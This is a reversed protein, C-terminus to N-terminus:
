VNEAVIRKSELLIRDGAESRGAGTVGGRPVVDVSVDLAAEIAEKMRVLDFYGAGEEMTVLLDLDSDWRDEGRAVSGFVEM